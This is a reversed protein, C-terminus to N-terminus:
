LLRCTEIVTLLTGSIHLDAVVQLSRSYKNPMLQASCTDFQFDYADGVQELVSPIAM